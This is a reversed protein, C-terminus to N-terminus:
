DRLLDATKAIEVGSYIEALTLSCGCSEFNVRDTLLQYLRVSWTADGSQRAFLQVLYRGTCVVLYERVTHIGTYELLRDTQDM